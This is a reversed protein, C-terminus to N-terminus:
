HRGDDRSAVIPQMHLGRLELQKVAILEFIRTERDRDDAVTQLLRAVFAASSVLLTAVRFDRGALLVRGCPLRGSGSRAAKQKKRM